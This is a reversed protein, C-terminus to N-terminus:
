STRSGLYEAIQDFSVHVVELDGDTQVLAIEKEKSKEMMHGSSRKHPGHLIMVRGGRSPLVTEVDAETVGEVLQGEEMQMTFSFQDVVDVVRGKKTYYRGKQFGQNVIRLRLGPVVWSIRAREKSRSRSRSRRRKSSSAHDRHPSRKRSDDRRDHDHHHGGGSSRSRSRKHGHSDSEHRPHDDHSRRSSKSSHDGKDHHHHHDGNSAGSPAPEKRKLSRSNMEAAAAGTLLAPHDSPLANEDLIDVDARTVTVSEGNLNLRVTLQQDPSDKKSSDKMAEVRGYLRKHKGSRFEVLCGERLQMSHVKILREDLTRYSRKKGDADPAVRMYEKGEASEGPKLIRKKNKKDRPKAHAAGLGMLSPRAVFEIPKVVRANTNGVAGGPTWGMGLLMGKGFSEVPVREYADLTTDEPRMEVDRRLREKEDRIDALGPIANAVLLPADVM